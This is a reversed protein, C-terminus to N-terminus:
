KDEIMLYYLLIIKMQSNEYIATFVCETQAIEERQEQASCSKSMGLVRPALINDGRSPRILCVEMFDRESPIELIHAPFSEETYIWWMWGALYLMRRQRLVLVKFINGRGEFFQGRFSQWWSTNHLPFIFSDKFIWLLITIKLTLGMTCNPPLPLILFFFGNM